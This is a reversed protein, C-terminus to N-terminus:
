GNKRAGISAWSILDCLVQPVFPDLIETATAVRKAGDAPTWTWLEDGGSVARVWVVRDDSVGRTYDNVSNSTLRVIGTQPTWTYFEYDHGDYQSWAIRDGSLMAALDGQNNSTLQTVFWAESPAAFSSRPLLLVVFVLALGVIIMATVCKKM